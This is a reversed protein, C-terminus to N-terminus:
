REAPNPPVHRPNALLANADHVRAKVAVELGQVLESGAEAVEVLCGAAHWHLQGLNQIAVVYGLHFLQAVLYEGPSEARPAQSQHVLLGALWGWTGQRHEAAQWTGADLTALTLPRM